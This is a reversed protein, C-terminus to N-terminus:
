RGIESTYEYSAREEAWTCHQCKATHGYGCTPWSRKHDWGRTRAEIELILRRSDEYSFQLGKIREIIPAIDATHMKLFGSRDQGATGV